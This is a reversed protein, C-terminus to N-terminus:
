QLKKIEADCAEIITRKIYEPVEWTSLPCPIAVEVIDYGFLHKFRELDQLTRFKEFECQLEIHNLM